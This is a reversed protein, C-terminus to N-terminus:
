PRGRPGGRQADDPGIANWALRFWRGFSPTRYLGRWQCRADALVRPLRDCRRARRRLCDIVGLGVHFARGLTLVRDTQSTEVDLQCAVAIAPIAAARSDSWKQSLSPVPKRNIQTGKWYDRSSARSHSSAPIASGPSLVVRNNRYM